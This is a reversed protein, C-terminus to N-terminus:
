NNVSPTNVSPGQYGDWNGGSRRSQGPPTTGIAESVESVPRAGVAQGDRLHVAHILWYSVHDNLITINESSSSKPTDKMVSVFRLDYKPEM